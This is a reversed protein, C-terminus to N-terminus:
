DFVVEMEVRRNKQRGEKTANDAIPRDPGYHETIIQTSRVEQEVLFIKVANARLESLKMNYRRQGVNDTHGTLKLKWDPKEKLLNALEVLSTYSSTKIVAKGSEFELNDFATNLVEQEEEKIEPCGDNEPVGPTAPCKDEKDIVGDGDTDSYPCGNNEPPGPAEPCGDSDDKIGDGDSDAYPCGDNEPIGAEQPCKDEHDHIGDGDSDPCGKKEVPGPIEPCLDKSDIVTDGDKDPCGKQEVLGPIEPCYDELDIVTDGDKDPCGKYQAPGPDQPCRDEKDAVGDGDTDPCGKFQATGPQTPCDDESDQIMDGDTDPCGRFEWVGITTPCMDFKDSVKDRDRDKPSPFNVPIKLSAHVYTDAFDSKFVLPVVFNSAGVTLPGVRVSFGANLKRIPDYTIPIAAEFYTTEFRPTLAISSLYHIKEHNSSGQRFSIIPTLNAYFNGYFNYDAELAIRTPLGVRYSGTTPSYDTYDDIIGYLGNLLDGEDLEIDGTDVTSGATSYTGSNSGYNYKVSGIDLISLGVKLLYKNLDRRWMDTKGDMDYKYDKYNPRFEYVVGLDLGLNLGSLNLGGDNLDLGTSYGSILQGSVDISNDDQANVNYGINNGAFYFSQIGQLLKLSGGAKLFHENQDMVVQAYHLNYEFWTHHYIGFYDDIRNDKWRDPEDQIERSFRIVEEDLDDINTVSRFATSFGIGRGQPLSIMFSPLQAYMNIFLCKPKGNFNEKIFTDNFTSDMDVDLNTILFPDLYAYNNSGLFSISLLNVDVHLRSDAIAAPQFGVRNIGAYNSAHYGVFDQASASFILIFTLLFYCIKKM